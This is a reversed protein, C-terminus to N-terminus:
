ANVELVLEGTIFSIPNDYNELNQLRFVVHSVTEPEMQM